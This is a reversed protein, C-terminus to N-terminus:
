KGILEIIEERAEAKLKEIMPKDWDGPIVAELKDLLKDIGKMVPEVVKALPYEVAVQLSLTEEEVYLGVGVGLGDAKDVLKKEVVTKMKDGKHIM